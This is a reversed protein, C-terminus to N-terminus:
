QQQGAGQETETEETRATGERRERAREGHARPVSAERRWTERVVKTNEERM